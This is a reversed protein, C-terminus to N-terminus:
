NRMNSFIFKSYNILLLYKTVIVMCGSTSNDKKFMRMVEFGQITAYATRMSQFGRRPNILQKLKGHDTELKNNRYKIHLHEINKDLKGEKKLEKIAQVYAPNKDTNIM